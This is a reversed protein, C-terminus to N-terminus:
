ETSPQIELIFVAQPSPLYFLGLQGRCETSAELRSNSVDSPGLYMRSESRFKKTEIVIQIWTEFQRSIKRLETSGCVDCAFLVNNM